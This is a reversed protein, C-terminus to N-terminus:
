PILSLVRHNSNSACIEEIFRLVENKSVSPFNLNIGVMFIRWEEVPVTGSLRQTLRRELPAEERQKRHYEALWEADALPEGAFPELEAFDASLEANSNKDAEM